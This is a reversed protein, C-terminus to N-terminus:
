LKSKMDTQALYQQYWPSCDKVRRDLFRQMRAWLDVQADCTPKAQGGFFIPAGNIYAEKNPVGGPMDDPSAQVNALGKPAVHRQVPLMRQYSQSLLPGYPPEILHGAGPYVIGELKDSRNHKQMHEQLRPITLYSLWTDDSGAVLLYHCDPSSQEIPVVPKTGLMEAILHKNPLMRGKDDVTIHEASLKIGESLLSGRYMLNTDYSVGVVAICVVATLAPVKTSLLLAIDTSKSVSIMGCRDPIVNDQAMVFNIAEEFYELDLVDPVAPLDDYAFFPLALVAYGRSALM